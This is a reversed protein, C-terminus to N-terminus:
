WRLRTNWLNEPLPVQQESLVLLTGTKIAVHSEVTEATSFAWCSGCGGQDKVASVVKKDRWDIGAPLDAARMAALPARPEGARAGKHLGKFRKM